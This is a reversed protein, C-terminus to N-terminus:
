GGGTTLPVRRPGRGAPSPPRQGLGAKRVGRNVASAVAKLSAMVINSDIGVGFLTRGGGAGRCLRPPSTPAAACRTSGIIPSTSM